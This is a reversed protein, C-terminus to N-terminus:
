GRLFKEAAAAKRLLFESYRDSSTHFAALELASETILRDFHQFRQDKWTAGLASLEQFLLREEKKLAESNRHLENAFQKMSAPSTIIQTV